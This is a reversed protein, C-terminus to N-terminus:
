NRRRHCQTTSESPGELEVPTVRYRCHETNRGKESSLMLSVTREDSLLGWQPRARHEGLQTSLDAALVM